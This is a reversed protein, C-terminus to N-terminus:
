DKSSNESLSNDGEANFYVAMMEIPKDLEIKLQDLVELFWSLHEGLYDVEDQTVSLLCIAVRALLVNENKLDRASGKGDLYGWWVNASERYEAESLAGAIYKKTTFLPDSGLKPFKLNLFEVVQILYGLYLKVAARSDKPWNIAGINM